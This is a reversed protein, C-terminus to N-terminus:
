GHAGHEHHPSPSLYHAPTRPHPPEPAGFLRISPVDLPGRRYAPIELLVEYKTCSVHYSTRGIAARVVLKEIPLTTGGPPRVQYATGPRVYRTSSPIRRYLRSGRRAVRSGGSARFGRVGYDRHVNVIPLVRTGPSNNRAINILGVQVGHLEEAYNVIGIALGRQVGKLQNFSGVSLGRLTGHELRAWGATILAGQVDRAGAGIGGIALGRIEPAGVGVAAIAVGHILESAGM